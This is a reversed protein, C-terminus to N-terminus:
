TRPPGAVMALQIIVMSLAIVAVGAMVAFSPWSGSTFGVQLLVFVPILYTYAMVKASPLRLSAYQMLYFTLATPAVALYVIAGYVGPTVTTWVTSFITTAGYMALLIACMVFTWFTMVLLSEGKHFKRVAPSYASYVVAGAFFIAEGRGIAFGALRAMDGGFIVWLAGSAALGMGALLWVGPRQGLFIVSFLATLGPVLTFVAAMAVAGTHRAAAFMAVFFVALLLALVGYAALRMLGPWHWSDFATILAAFVASAIVFRLFTLAAPDLAHTIAVSVPFSTSIVASFLVMAAHAKAGNGPVVKAGANSGPVPITPTRPGTPMPATM